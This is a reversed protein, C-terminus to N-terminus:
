LKFVPAATLLNLGDDTVRLLTAYIITKYELRLIPIVVLSAQLIAIHDSRM